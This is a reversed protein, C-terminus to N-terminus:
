FTWEHRTTEGAWALIRIPSAEILTHSGDPEASPDWGYREVFLPAIESWMEPHRTAWAEVIVVNMPDPLAITVSPNGVLNKVKVSDSPTAFWIRNGHVVHWMPVSHPRGDPRTSSLWSFEETRLRDFVAHLTPDDPIPVPAMTPRRARNFWDGSPEPQRGDLFTPPAWYLWAEVVTGDDLKVEGSRRTFFSPHGEIVDCIALGQDSIDFLEGVVTGEGPGIGPYAGFDYLLANALTARRGPGVHDVIQPHYKTDGEPGGAPTRLTGYVFLQAV